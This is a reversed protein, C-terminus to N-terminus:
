KSRQLEMFPSFLHNHLCFLVYFISELAYTPQLLESLQLLPWFKPFIFTFFVFINANKTMKRRTQLDCLTYIVLGSCTVCECELLDWHELVQEVFTRPGKTAVLHTNISNSFHWNKSIDELVWSSSAM